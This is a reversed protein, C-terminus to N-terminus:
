LRAAYCRRCWERRGTDIRRYITRRSWAPWTDGYIEPAESQINDIPQGLAPAAYLRAEWEWAPDTLMRHFLVGVSSRNAAIDDSASPKLSEQVEGKLLCRPIMRWDAGCHGCVWIDKKGSFHRNRSPCAVCKKLAYAGTTKVPDLSIAGADFMEELYEILHREPSM